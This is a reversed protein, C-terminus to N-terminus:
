IHDITSFAQRFGAQRAARLEERDAHSSLEAELISGCLKALIHGIMIIRYNVLDLTDGIKHIPVITNMTWEVPFGESLARKFLHSLFPALTNVAYFFHEGQWGIHDTARGHQLRHIAREVM